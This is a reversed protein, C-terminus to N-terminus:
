AATIPAGPAWSPSAMSRIRAAVLADLSRRLEDPHRRQGDTVFRVIWGEAHMAAERDADSETARHGFHHRRSHAEIAIKLEPLAFDVRAVFRGDHRTVVYQRVLGPLGVLCREVDLELVSDTPLRHREADDLLALLLRPGRRRACDLREATERMWRLSYGNRWAWEFAAAVRDRSEVAGLDCLTRAVGTCVIGDVEVIDCEDLPGRHQVLGALRIHRSASVVLEVPGPEHADMTHLAASSRFGAVGAGNSALTAVMLRQHWTPPSGTVVLVRPVPETLAGDRKLRNVVKASLGHDAAQSRTLAGHRTAAFEGAPGFPSRAVMRPFM